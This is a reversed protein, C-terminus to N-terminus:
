AVPEPKGEDEDQDDDGRPNLLATVFPSIMEIVEPVGQNFIRREVEEVQKRHIGAGAAVIHALHDTNLATLAELAGRLGGFRQQIRRYADLTPRLTYLEGDIECEVVGRTVRSM